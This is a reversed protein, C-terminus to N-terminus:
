VALKREQESRVESLATRIRPVLDIMKQQNKESMGEGSATSLQELQDIWNELIIEKDLVDIRDEKVVEQPHSFHRIPDRKLEDVQTNM